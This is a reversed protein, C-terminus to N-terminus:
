VFMNGHKISYNLNDELMATAYKIVQTARCFHTYRGLFDATLIYTPMEIVKRNNQM